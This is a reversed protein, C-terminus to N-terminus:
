LHRVRSAGRWLVAAGTAILLLSAPEPTVSGANFKYTFTGGPALEYGFEGLRLDAHATGNGHVDISFVERRGPFEQTTATLRGFFTFPAMPTWTPSGDLPADAGRSVFQWQGTFAVSNYPVGHYYVNGVGLGVAGDSANNMELHQGPTCVLAACGIDFGTGSFSRLPALTIASFQANGIAFRFLWQDDAITVYGQDLAIPEAIAAPPATWSAGTLGALLVLLRWLLTRRM